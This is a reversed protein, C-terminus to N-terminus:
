VKGKDELREQYSVVVPGSGDRSIVPNDMSWEQMWEYVSFTIKLAEAKYPAGPSNDSLTQIREIVDLCKDFTYSQPSGTLTTRTTIRDKPMKQAIEVM